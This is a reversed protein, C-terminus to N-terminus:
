RPRLRGIFNKHAHEAGKVFEGHAHPKDEHFPAGAVPEDGEGPVKTLDTHPQHRMTLLVTNTKRGVPTINALLEPPTKLMVNELESEARAEPQQTDIVKGTGACLPCERELVLHHKIVGTGQCDPCDIYHTM